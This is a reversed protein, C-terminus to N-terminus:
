GSDRCLTIVMMHVTHNGPLTSGAIGTSDAEFLPLPVHRCCMKWKMLLHEISRDASREQYTTWFEATPMKQLLYAVTVLIDEFDKTSYFCDSGLIIDQPPLQLLAPSFEGWTLGHISVGRLGNAECSKRCNDLCRPYNASDSLSVIGGCKAALIGPLATGAGIELVHKNRIEERHFWVYQALVPACPWVYMGFAPDIVEPILIEMTDGEDSFTFTRTSEMTDPWESTHLVRFYFSWACAPKLCPSYFASSLAFDVYIISFYKDQLM